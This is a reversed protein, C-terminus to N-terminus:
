SIVFLLINLLVFVVLFTFVMIILHKFIAKKTSIKHKKITWLFTGMMFIMGAILFYSRYDVMWRSFLVVGASFGITVAVAHLVCCIGALFGGGSGQFWSSKALKNSLVSM